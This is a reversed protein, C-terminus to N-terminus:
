MRKHKVSFFYFLIPNSCCVLIILGFINLLFMEWLTNWLLFLSMHPQFSMITFLHNWSKTIIQNVSVQQTLPNTLSAPMKISFFIIRNNLSHLQTLQSPTIIPGPVIVLCKGILFALSLKWATIYQLIHLCKLLMIFLM